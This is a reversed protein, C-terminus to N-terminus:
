PDIWVLRMDAPRPFVRRLRGASTLRLVCSRGSAEDEAPLYAVVEDEFALGWCVVVADDRAPAVACLTFRRPANEASLAALEAMLEDESGFVLGSGLEGQAGM